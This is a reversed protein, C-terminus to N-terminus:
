TVLENQAWKTSPFRSLSEKLPLTHDILALSHDRDITQQFGPIKKSTLTTKSTNNNISNSNSLSQIKSEHNKQFLELWGPSVDFRLEEDSLQQPPNCAEDMVEKKLASGRVISRFNEENELSIASNKLIMQKHLKRAIMNLICNHRTTINYSHYSKLSLFM